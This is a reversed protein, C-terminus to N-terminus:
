WRLSEAALALLILILSLVSVVLRPQDLRLYHRCAMLWWLTMWLVCVPVLAAGPMVDALMIRTVSANPPFVHPWRSADAWKRPDLIAAAPTLGALKLAFSVSLWLAVVGMPAVLSYFFIRVIHAPKVRAQRLTTPILAFIMPMAFLCVLVGPTQRVLWLPSEIASEVILKTWYEPGTTGAWSRRRLYDGLGINAALLLYGITVCLATVVAAPGLHVPDTMRVSRWFRRPFFSHRVTRLLRVLPRRRWHYEFLWPHETLLFVRGWDFELGCENCRGQTPCRTTWTSVTGELNYGCRPCEASPRAM